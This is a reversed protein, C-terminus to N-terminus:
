EGKTKTKKTKTSTKKILKTKVAKKTEKKEEKENKEKEEKEQAKKLSLNLRHIEPEIAIIEFEYSKGEEVAEKPDTIKEGLESIHVLGDVGGVKVFAGFPTIKTVKAEVKQGTKYSSALKLWPDPLLRKISLSLRNDETSIVQVQVKQGVKFIKNLDSVHEWSIESIHVLGEAEDEPSLKVKVFLGFDVIGTIEGELKQDVKINKIKEQQVSDGAAKESFILKGSNPEFNLIKVQFTQGVLEKLRNFIEDRNGSSVKPYHSSALQSVPLFGEYEGFQCLLGGKNADSTKVQLVEGSDFKDQLIKLIREKDARRLSLVAYGEDNEVTLVYVLIKDDKKLEGMDPSFEQEPIIGLTLGGVDVLVKGKFVQLVKVELLEGVRIPVLSSGLDNVLDKMTKLNKDM